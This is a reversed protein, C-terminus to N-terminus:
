RPPAKQNAQIERMLRTLEEMQAQMRKMQAEGDARQAELEARRAELDARMKRLEAREAELGPIVFTGGSSGGVSGGGPQVPPVPVTPPVPMATGGRPAFRITGRLGGLERGQELREALQKLTSTAADLQPKKLEDADQLMKIVSRLSNSVETRVEDDLGFVSQGFPELGHFGEAGTVGGMGIRWGSSDLKEADFAELTVNVDQRQGARIITFKVVDGPKRERLAKRLNEPSADSKGDVAVVVDSKRLGAKAAPLGEKVSSLLTAEGEKLGLNERLVEPPEELTVGLMVPPRPEGPAAVLARALAGRENMEVTQGGARPSTAWAGGRGAVSVAPRQPVDFKAIEAGTQDVVIISGGTFSVRSTPQKEGNVTLNSVRGDRIEVSIDKDNIKMVYRETSSGAQGDQGGIVSLGAQGMAPMPGMGCLSLMVAAVHKNKM